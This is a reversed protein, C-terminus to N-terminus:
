ERIERLEDQMSEYNVHMQSVRPMLGSSTSLSSRRLPIAEKSHLVGDFLAFM